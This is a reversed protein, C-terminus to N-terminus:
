SQKLVTRPGEDGKIGIHNIIDLLFTTSNKTRGSATALLYLFDDIGELAHIDVYEDGDTTITGQSTGIIDTLFNEASTQLNSNYPDGLRNIVIKREDVGGESEVSCNGRGHWRHTTGM